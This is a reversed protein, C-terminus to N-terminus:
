KQKWIIPTYEHSGTEMWVVGSALWTIYINNNNNDYQKKVILYRM